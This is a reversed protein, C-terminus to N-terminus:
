CFKLKRIKKLFTFIRIKYKAQFYILVFIIKDKLSTPSYFTTYIKKLLDIRKLTQENKEIWLAFNDMPWFIFIRKLKRIEFLNLSVFPINEITATGLFVKICDWQEENSPISYQCISESRYKVYVRKDDLGMLPPIIQSVFTYSYDFAYHIYPALKYLNYINNSMFVLNGAHRKKLFYYNIFEHLSNMNCEDELANINSTSYKFWACEPDSSIDRLIIDISDKTVIDDDGIMWMWKTKPLLFCNNINGQGGINCNNVVVKCKEFFVPPLEEKLVSYVNYSSHNDSVIFENVLSYNTKLFSKLLRVLEIKRNYTPIVVTLDLKDYKSKEM